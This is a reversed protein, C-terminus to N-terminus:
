LVDFELDLLSIEIHSPSSQEEGEMLLVYLRIGTDTM